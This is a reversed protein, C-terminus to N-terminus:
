RCPNLLTPTAKRVPCWTACALLGPRRAESLKHNRVPSPRHRSWHPNGQKQFVTGVICDMGCAERCRGEGLGQSRNSVWLIHLSSLLDSGLSFRLLLAVPCSHDGQRSPKSQFGTAMYHFWFHSFHSLGVSPFDKDGTLLVGADRPTHTFPHEAGVGAGTVVVGWSVGRRRGCLHSGWSLRGWNRRGCCWSCLSLTSHAWHLWACKPTPRAALLLFCFLNWTQEWIGRPLHHMNTLM